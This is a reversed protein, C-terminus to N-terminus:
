FPPKRGLGLVLGQVGELDSPAHLRGITQVIESLRALYEMWAKSKVERQAEQIANLLDGCGSGLYRTLLSFYLEKDPVKLNPRTLIASHYSRLMETLDNITWIELIDVLQPEELLIQRLVSKALHSSDAESLIRFGSDLNFLHGYRRLFLSLVGHITSIQIKSKSSIYDLFESQDSKIGEVILRERLEQTAKRSFTTVVMRPFERYVHFYDFATKFVKKTLTTTKGAGAGARVIEDDLQFSPSSM